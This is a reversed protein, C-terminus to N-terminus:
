VKAFPKRYRGESCIDEGMVIMEMLVQSCSASVVAETREKVCPYLILVVVELWWRCSVLM